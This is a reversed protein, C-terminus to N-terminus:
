VLSHSHSCTSILLAESRNINKQESLLESWWTLGVLISYALKELVFFVSLKINILTSIVRSVVSPKEEHSKTIRGIPVDPYLSICIIRGIPVDPIILLYVEFNCYNM